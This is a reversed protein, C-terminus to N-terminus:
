SAYMRYRSLLVGFSIGTLPNTFFNTGATLSISIGSIAFLIFLFDLPDLALNSTLISYVFRLIMLFLSIFLILGFLGLKLLIWSSLFHPDDVQFLNRGSNILTRLDPALSMDIYGGPGLGFLFQILSGEMLDIVQRSEWARQLLSVESIQELNLGRMLSFIESGPLFIILGIALFRLAIRRVKTSCFVVFFIACNLTFLLIVASSPNNSYILTYIVRVIVFIPIWLFFYERKVKDTKFIFLLFLACQFSIYSFPTSPFIMFCNFFCLVLSFKKWLEFTRSSFEALLNGILLFLIFGAIQTTGQAIAMLNLEAPSLYINLFTSTWLTFLVLISFNKGNWLNQRRENKKSILFIIIFSLYAIPLFIRKILASRSFIQRSTTLDVALNLLCAFLVLFFLLISIRESNSLNSFSRRKNQM